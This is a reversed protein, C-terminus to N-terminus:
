CLLGLAATRGSSIGVPGHLSSSSSSGILAASCGLLAFIENVCCCFSSIVCPLNPRGNMKKCTHIVGVNKVHKFTVLKMVVSIIENGVTYHYQCKVADRGFKCLFYFCDFAGRGFLKASVFNVTHQKRCLCM